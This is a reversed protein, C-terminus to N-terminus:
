IRRGYNARWQALFQKKTLNSYDLDAVLTVKDALEDFEMGLVRAGAQKGINQGTFTATATRWQLVNGLRLFQFADGVNLVTPSVKSRPQKYNYLIYDAAIQLGAEDTGAGKQEEATARLGYQAISEYDISTAFTRAGGSAAQSYVTVHNYIPGDETIIPTDLETNSNDLVQFTTMGMYDYVNLFLRLKGSEVQGSIYWEFGHKNTLKEMMTSWRVGPIYLVSARSVVEGVNLAIGDVFYSNTVELAQKFFEAAPSIEVHVIPTYRWDLMIEASYAKVKVQHADWAMPTDMVGVWDPLTDHRIYVLNGFNLLEPTVKPDNSSITFEAEGVKNIAWARFVPVSLEGLADGFPSFILVRSSM